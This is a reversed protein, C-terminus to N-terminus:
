SVKSNWKARHSHFVARPKLSSAQLEKKKPSRWGVDASVWEVVGNREYGHMMINLKVSSLCQVKHIRKNTNQKDLFLIESATASTKEPM